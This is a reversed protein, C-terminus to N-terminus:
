GHPRLILLKSSHYIKGQFKINSSTLSEPTMFSGLFRDMYPNTFFGTPSKTGKNPHVGCEICGGVPQVVQKDTLTISDETTPPPIPVDISASRVSKGVPNSTWHFSFTHYCSCPVMGCHQLNTSVPNLRLIPRSVLNKM